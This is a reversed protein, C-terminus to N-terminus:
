AKSVTTLFFSPILTKSITVTPCAPRLETKMLFPSIFLTLPVKTEYLLGCSPATCIVPSPSFKTILDGKSPSYTCIAPCCTPCIVSMCFNCSPAPFTSNLTGAGNFSRENYVILPACNTTGFGAKLPSTKYLCPELNLASSFFRGPAILASTITPSLRSVTVITPPFPTM